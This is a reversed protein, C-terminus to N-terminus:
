PKMMGDMIVVSFADFPIKAAFDGLGYGKTLIPKGGKTVLVGAGSFRYKELGKAFFEDAWKEADEATVKIEAMAGLSGFMMMLCTTVLGLIYRNRNIM